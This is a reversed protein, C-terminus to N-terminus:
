THRLVRLTLEFPAGEPRPPPLVRAHAAVGEADTRDADDRTPRAYGESASGATEGESRRPPRAHDATM